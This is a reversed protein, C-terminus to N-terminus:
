VHNDRKDAIIKMYSIGLHHLHKYLKEDNEKYKKAYSERASKGFYFEAVEGSVPDIFEGEGLISPNEEFSDRIIIVFVEHRSSLLSLDVEGLFDGVLIVMSKQKLKLNIHTLDVSKKYLEIKEIEQIFHEVSQLKKSGKMVLMTDSVIVPTLKNSLKLTSYGLSSCIEILSLKKDGFLLSGSLLACVVVNIEKEEFYLKVHPKGTKATSKWDIKRADEGLM